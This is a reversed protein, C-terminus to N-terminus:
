KSISGGEQGRSKFVDSTIVKFQTTFIKNPGIKIKNKNKVNDVPYISFVDQRCCRMVFTVNPVTKKLRFKM